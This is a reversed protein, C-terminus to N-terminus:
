GEFFNLVCEVICVMIEKNVVSVDINIFVLDFWIDCFVKIWVNNM